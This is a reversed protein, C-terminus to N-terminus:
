HGEMAMRREIKYRATELDEEVSTKMFLKEAMRGLVPWPVTCDIVVRIETDDGKPEFLFRWTSEIGGMSHVVQKRNPVVETIETEGSIPLGAIKRTWKFHDGKASGTVDRVNEMSRVWNPSMWPNIFYSFVRDVPAHIRISKEVHVMTRGERYASREEQAVNSGGRGRPSAPEGAHM